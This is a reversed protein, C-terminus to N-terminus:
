TRFITMTIVFIVGFSMFRLVPLIRIFMVFTLIVSLVMTPYFATQFVQVNRNLM